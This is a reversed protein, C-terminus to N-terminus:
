VIYAGKKSSSKKKLLCFIFILISGAISAYLPIPFHINQNEHFIYQQLFASILISLLCQLVKGPFYRGTGLGKTVSVTQMYVCLGGFALAGSCIIFRIGSNAIQKLNIIGNSLELLSYLGIQSEPPLLWLVWRTLVTLIIRFVVVWGCICGMTKLSLELANPLSVSNKTKLKCATHTKEPLLFGVLLASFIHILWLLWVAKRETFISGAIGFIFAPGANNCYGLMRSATNKTICGQRYADAIMSAGLPYGGLFGLILLSEAGDPIGCMYCIPSIVKIHKGILRSQLLATLILFPFLSPIVASLCLTIGDIAGHIVTKSDLILLTLTFFLFIVTLTERKHKM